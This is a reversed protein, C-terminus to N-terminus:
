LDLDLVYFSFIITVKTGKLNKKAGNIIKLCKLAVWEYILKIKEQLSMFDVSFFDNCDELYSSM